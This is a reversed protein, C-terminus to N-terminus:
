ETILGYVTLLALANLIFLKKPFKEWKVLEEDATTAQTALLDM